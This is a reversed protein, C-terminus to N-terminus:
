GGDFHRYGRADLTRQDGDATRLRVGAGDDVRGIATVAVDLGARWDDQAALAAPVRSACSTTMGATSCGTAAAQEAHGGAALACRVGAARRARDLVLGVGSAAAIHGADAVLGDSVDICASARGRLAQGLAVRPTPRDLRGRWRIPEPEAGGQLGRWAPPRRARRARSVFLLDGVRAGGRRWRRAWAARLGAVQVTASLPRAPDHRRRASRHGRLARAMRM